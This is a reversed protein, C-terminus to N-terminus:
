SGQPAVPREGGAQLGAVLLIAILSASLFSLTWGTTRGPTQYRLHILHKGAAVPVAMSFGDALAVSERRGDVEANWGPDDAELLQVFGPQGTAVEVRIEDSNPRSYSVAPRNEQRNNRGAPPNSLESRAEEAPLLLQDRPPQALLTEILKERPLFQVQDKRFFAVRPAPNPVRYLRVAGSSSVLELDGREAVTIVFRAGALQLAPASLLSGDIQQTNFGAPAGAMGLIARYPNALLISDFAGVDDYRDRFWPALAADTAIRADGLEPQLIEDFAVTGAAPWYITRVFLRSFGGLDLAQFLLGLGVLTAGLRRGFRNSELLATVAFGLAIAAAFTSLYLLRAPSRLLTGPILARVPQALRVSLLLASAGMVALFLFPPSPLRRRRLSGIFLVVVAALPLLGVYSSTDWFYADNLYGHFLQRNLLGVARPWGDIGPRIMAALRRYPMVIDNSAAALPLARTSRRILLLMPWWIMATTAVGLAMALVPRIRRWGDGRSLIYLAAATLSYAPLQPHGAVATAAGAIALLALDRLAYPSRDPAVARDALWLLLPLSPYAELLPLHGAMVRTSFFGACAFTWGAAVAGLDSIGLRKSFLYTFAAALGAALAVGIAYAALPDFFLLILRTPIWPFSQVNALFPSGLLERPYWAPLAHRPGFLAERAFLIRHMHLQFYDTGLLSEGTLLAPRFYMAETLLLM